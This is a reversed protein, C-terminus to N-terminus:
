LADYIHDKLSKMCTSSTLPAGLENNRKVYDQESHKVAVQGKTRATFILIAYGNSSPTIILDSM